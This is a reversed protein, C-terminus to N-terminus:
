QYADKMAEDFVHQFTGFGKKVREMAVNTRKVSDQEVEHELLEMKLRSNVLEKEACTVQLQTIELSLKKKMGKYSVQEFFGEQQEELKKRLEQNEKQLENNEVDRTTVRRRLRLIEEEQEERKQAAVRKEEERELALTQQQSRLFEVESEV